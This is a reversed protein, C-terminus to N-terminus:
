RPCDNLKLGAIEQLSWEGKPLTDLCTAIFRELDEVNADNIDYERLIKYERRIKKWISSRAKVRYDAAFSLTVFFVVASVAENFRARCGGLGM